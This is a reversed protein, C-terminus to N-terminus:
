EEQRRIFEAEMLNKLREDIGCLLTNLELATEALVKKKKMEGIKDFEPKKAESLKGLAEECQGIVHTLYYSMEKDSFILDLGFLRDLESSLGVLEEPIKRERMLQAVGESGLNRSYEEVTVSSSVLMAFYFKDGERMMKNKLISFGNDSLFQRLEPIESQPQLILYEAKKAKDPSNGIIETITRTGMGAIIIVDAEEDSLGSLGPALLTEIRDSLGAKSINVKAHELPGEKIDCAFAREAIGRQLLAISVYGHDCGIDAVTRCKPVLSVIGETRPTLKPSYAKKARAM